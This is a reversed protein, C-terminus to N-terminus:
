VWEMLEEVECCLTRSLRVLYEAQAKNIDKQRQEYQQITRVPIGSYEALQRQSLGAYRRLRKLSTQPLAALYLEDMRDRFQLIDMEHYPEYLERVSLVPVARNIMEFSLSTNWQYWALAWGTWYEPSRSVAFRPKVRESEAGSVELVTWALEVGSMGVLLTDDGRGFRGAIGSSLFLGYFSEMEYRLDYVAYDLMRGLATRGKEVYTEDYAPIM